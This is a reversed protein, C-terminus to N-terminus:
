NAYETNKLKFMYLQENEEPILIPFFSILDGRKVLFGKNILSRMFNSLGASSIELRERVIKKGSTGFRFEAIDGELSMFASIVEIERPTMKVPLICNLLSLHIEFYDERSVQLLKKIEKM